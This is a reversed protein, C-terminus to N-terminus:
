RWQGLGSENRADGTSASIGYEEVMWVHGKELSVEVGM